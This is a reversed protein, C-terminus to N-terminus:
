APGVATEPSGAIAIRQMIRRGHYDPVAYHNTARNDWFTVDGPNWRVRVHFECHKVHDFLFDLLMRGEAAPVDAIESTWNYNVNILKRGSEPHVAIVPHRVPPYQDLTQSAVLRHSSLRAAMQALSHWAELGELHAQMRPSLAAYAASMSAFCTDGGVEPVQHAQLLAGMPPYARFTNDAHFNAAPSSSSASGSGNQDLLLLVPDAADRLFPAVELEGFSAALAKHQDITLIPQERFCLVEHEALAARIMAIQDPALPRSLDIGSVEAGLAGAMRTCHIM